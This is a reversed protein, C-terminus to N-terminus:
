KGSEASKVVTLKGGATIDSFKVFPKTIAKGNLLMESAYVNEPANNRTEIVFKDGKYYKRNLTITVKDFKPSGVAMNADNEALGSIDFLGLATIVYWSGLQGQDEDQGYGYGHIGDTGYFEDLIANTWKQTLHPAGADNFLWSIHQCPQNGQNYYTELGAFADITTGGSFIKSRSKEFIDNLRRVFEEEGVKAILAKVDHPVYFTYHWANGEQFGRWVEMPNFNDIFRGDATKPHVLNLANDYIRDWAKSLYNLKEYDETRGMEKAMEAVAHCSFAYELTHSASFKWAEDIGAPGEDLHPVYGYEVFKDKDLCGAGRPRDVGDLENKRIAEYALEVDYDRIGNLYAAAFALSLQNTGVGSVYRSCALGDGIWGTDKYVQLHTRVYDSLYEPYALAWLQVLNWQGGWIADTNVFRFAPRGNELPIMGITGDNKPYAGNVDGALGRGLLGHYLGTYFKVLDDHTGGEARIRGLYSEWTKKSNDRAVDFTLRGGDTEVTRNLRANEVSTYSLGVQVTVSQNESTEFTLYAGAGVGESLNSGAHVDKGVFTGYSTPKTDLAASFYMTLTSGKQYKNVYEPLTTVWGEITGDDKIEVRADKAAGSEGQRNGIDFIIHSSDSAPFTFRQYAVRETATVEAKVNYDDLLVSYYGATAEENDHSFASRYGEGTTGPKGPVTKLEGVSPMLVIGGVQFEHLCPFGEISSDRYDYGTAEWGSRNGLSANTAPGPKALGFPMAGPAFHFWRCHATGIRPEVYDVLSVQEHETGCSFLSLAVLLVGAAKFSKIKKIM